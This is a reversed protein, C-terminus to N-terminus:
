VEDLIKDMEEEFEDKSKRVVAQESNIKEIEQVFEDM